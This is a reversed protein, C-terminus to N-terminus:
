DNWSNRKRKPEGRTGCAQINEFREGDIVPPSHGRLVNSRAAIQNTKPQLECDFATSAAACLDQGSNLQSLQSGPRTQYVQLPAELATAAIRM